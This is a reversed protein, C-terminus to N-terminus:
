SACASLFTNEFFTRLGECFSTRAFATGRELIGDNVCGGHCYRWWPCARCQTRRLYVMRNTLLQRIPHEMLAEASLASVHGYQFQNGDSSRGCLYVMGEPDVGFHSQVCKGSCECSLKWEGGERLQHGPGFPLVNKPLGDKIWVKHLTILAEGWEQATIGIDEWVGDATARGQRYLPNFRLGAAPHNQRFYQYIEELHPLSLHHVVHLIGYNLGANQILGIAEDWRKSYHGEPEGKLERIGSLPDASTGVVGHPGVLRQLLPLTKRTIRTANTQIGHEICLGSSQQLNEQVRFMADWFARPMLLPEGGHWIFKLHQHGYRVAWDTFLKLTTSMVEVSMVKASGGHAASCYRCRANCGDTPKIIVTTM